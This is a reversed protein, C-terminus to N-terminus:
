VFGMGSLIQTLKDFNGFPLKGDYFIANMEAYTLGYYNSLALVEDPLFKVEGSEKKSYSVKSKKIVKALEDIPVKRGARLERLRTSDM